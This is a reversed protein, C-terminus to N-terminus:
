RLEWLLTRQSPHLPDRIRRLFTLRTGSPKVFLAETETLAGIKDGQLAPVLGRGELRHWPARRHVGWVQWDRWGLVAAQAAWRDMFQEADTVGREWASPPYGFPCSMRVLRQMGELWARPVDANTAAFGRAAEVRDRSVSSFKSFLRLEDEEQQLLEALGDSHPGPSASRLRINASRTPCGAEAKAYNAAKAPAADHDTERPIFRRYAIM